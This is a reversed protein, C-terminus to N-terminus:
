GRAGDLDALVEQASRPRAFWHGQGIDIGLSEALEVQREDELGELVVPQGLEHMARVNHELLKLGPTHTTLFDRDMKVWHWRRRAVARLRSQGAGYDDLAVGIGHNELEDVVEYRDEGWADDGRETVELVIEAEATRSRQVIWELADSEWSLQDSELNISVVVRRRLRLCAEDAMDIAQEAVKRTVADLAGVRRAAAVLDPPPVAGRGPIDGRLLAEWGQVTRAPLAVLPHFVVSLGGDLLAQVTEADTPEVTGQPRLSKRQRVDREARAVIRGLSEDRDVSLTRGVTVGLVIEQGDANVPEGLLQQLSACQEELESEDRVDHCVGVFEDGGFRAFRWRGSFSNLRKGVAALAIDARLHGYTENIQKFYDLDFFVIGLIEGTMRERSKAALISRWYKYEWLGTLDDTVSEMHLRRETASRLFSEKGLAAVGAVLEEDHQNFGTDRPRRRAVLWRDPLVQASLARRGGPSAEVAVGDVRVHESVLRLMTDEIEDEPWPTESAARTLADALRRLSTARSYQWLALAAFTGTMVVAVAAWPDGPDNYLINLGAVLAAAYGVGALAAPLVSSTIDIPARGGRDLLARLGKLAVAAVLYELFGSAVSWGLTGPTWPLDLTVAFQGAVVVMAAHPLMEWARVRLVLPYSVVVTVAWLPLVASADDHVFPSTVVALSVGAVVMSFVRAVAPKDSVLSMCLVGVTSLLAFVTYLGIDPVQGIWGVFGLVVVAAAAAMLVWDYARAALRRDGRM